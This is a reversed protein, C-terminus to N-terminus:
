GPLSINWVLTAAAVANFTLHAVISPGLRQSRWALVGLVVGFAFLAPLQLLEFHSLAFFAATLLIAAWPNFPALGEKKLLSRQTLGRFFIEEAIPAGVAVLLFIVVIDAPGQVKDTLQRAAASVDHQGILKFLPFYILPVLLLQGALGVVIGLPVDVARIRLGLDHVIGRGKRRTAWVPVGILFLWLPLQLLYTFWLPAGVVVAPQRGVALHGAVQGFAAGTGTPAGYSYGSVAIAIIGFVLSVVEALVFGLAVDGLGWRPEEIGAAADADTAPV